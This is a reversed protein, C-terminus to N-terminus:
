SLLIRVSDHESASHSLAERTHNAPAATHDVLAAAETISSSETKGAGIGISM